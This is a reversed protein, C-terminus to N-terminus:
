RSLGSVKPYVRTFNSRERIVVVHLHTLTTCIWANWIETSSFLSPLKRLRRSTAFYFIEVGEQLRVGATWGM